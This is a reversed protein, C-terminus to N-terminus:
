SCEFDNGELPQCIAPWGFENWYDVLGIERVFPKFQPLRRVEIMSPLWFHLANTGSLRTAEAVLDFALETDGLAGAAVGVVSLAAIASADSNLVTRASRLAEQANSADLSGFVANNLFDEAREARSSGLYALASYLARSFSAEGFVAAMRDFEVEADREDGELALSLAYFGRNLENLPDRQRVEAFQDRAKGFEGVSMLFIGYTAPGAPNLTYPVRRYAREAGAFDGRAANTAALM